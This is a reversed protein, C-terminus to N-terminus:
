NSGALDRPLCVRIRGAVRLRQIERLFPVLWSESQRRSSGARLSHPHGYVVGLGGKEACRRLMEQAPGDFGGPTNLRACAIGAITELRTPWDRRGVVRDILRLHLGRYAVRCFQYGTSALEECLRYLDTRDRGARRRETMSLSLGRLYDFPQNYPPVFSIVAAGICQELADKSSKLTERLAQQDLGPLWEHRFSHSAVEHGQAHIRRIQAPDHYPRVGPLAAAGVVAFCAPIGYRAHLDLLADTSEFEFQGLDPSGWETDYDWFLLITGVPQRM